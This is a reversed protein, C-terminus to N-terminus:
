PSAPKGTICGGSSIRSQDKLEETQYLLIIFVGGMPSWYVTEKVQIADEGGTTEIM